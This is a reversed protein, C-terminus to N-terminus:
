SAMRSSTARPRWSQLGEDNTPYRDYAAYFTELAECIKAIEVKAANQKSLVLYSRTKFVVIGSMLGMIVLVVM